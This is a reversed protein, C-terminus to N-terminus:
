EKCETHTEQKYDDDLWIAAATAVSFTFLLIALLAKLILEHIM